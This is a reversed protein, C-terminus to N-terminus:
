PPKPDSGMIAGGLIYQQGMQGHWAEQAGAQGADAGTLCINSTSPVSSKQGM